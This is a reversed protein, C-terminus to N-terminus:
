DRRRRDKKGHYYEAKNQYMANDARKFVDKYLADTGETFFAVGKSVALKDDKHREERNILEVTEDLKQFAQDMEERTINENVVIFEDGGIRYAHEAGFVKKICEAADAIFIDGVEHGLQDNINKLGNLDFVVVAFDAMGEQIKRELKRVLDLYSTKNGVGTAADTYAQSRMHIIYEKLEDEMIQISDSLKGIENGSHYQIKVNMEGKAIRSAADTLEQIPKIIGVMVRWLVILVIFFVLVFVFWILNIMKQMPKIVNANPVAIALLLGNKLEQCMVRDEKGTWSYMGSGNGKIWEPLLFSRAEKYEEELRDATVGEPYKPSYIIDGSTSLLLGTGDLYDVSNVVNQILTMNLDMGVVGVFNGKVYVPTAYSVMYVDINKNMYPKLWMAQGNEIPEYYWAVHERDNKEYNGLDTLTEFVYEGYGNDTIFFGADMGFQDPDMRFYLTYVNGSVAAADLGERAIVQLFDKRYKDDQLARDLDIESKINESLLRVAREIGEFYVSLERADQQVLMTMTRNNDTEIVQHMYYLGVSGLLLFTGLVSGCFLLIIRTRISRM